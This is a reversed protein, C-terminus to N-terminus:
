FVGKFGKGRIAAGVGRAEGGCMMKNVSPLKSFKSSKKKKNNKNAASGTSDTTTDIQLGRPLDELYTQWEALNIHKNISTQTWSGEFIDQTVHYPWYSDLNPLPQSVTTKIHDYNINKM